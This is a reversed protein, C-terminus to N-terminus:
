FIVVLLRLKRQKSPAPVVAVNKPVTVLELQAFGIPVGTFVGAVVV